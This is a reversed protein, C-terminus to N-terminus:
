PKYNEDVSMRNYLENQVRVLAAATTHSADKMKNSFSDNIKYNENSINMKKFRLPSMIHSIKSLEETTMASIMADSQASDVAELAVLRAVKRAIGAFDEGTTSQARIKDGYIRGLMREEANRYLKNRLYNTGCNHVKTRFATMQEKSLIPKSEHSQSKENEKPKQTVVFTDNDRKQPVEENKKKTEVQTIEKIEEKAATEAVEKLIKIDKESDDADSNIKSSRKSFLILGVAAGATVVVVGAGKAIKTYKDYKEIAGDLEDETLKGAKAKKILSKVLLKRKGCADEIKKVDPIQVKQKALEPNSQITKAVEEAKKRTFLEKLKEIIKAITERIKQILSTFFNKLKSGFSEGAEMLLEEDDGYLSAEECAFLYENEANEVYLDLKRMDIDFQEIIYEM